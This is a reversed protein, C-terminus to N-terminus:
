ALDTIAAKRKVRIPNAADARVVGTTNCVRCVVEAQKTSLQRLKFKSRMFFYGTRAPTDQGCCYCFGAFKNVMQTDTIPNGSSAYFPQWPPPPAPRPTPPPTSTDARPAVPDTLTKFPDEIITIRGNILQDWTWGASDLLKTAKRLAVLAEGDNPSTTMRMLKILLEQKPITQDVMM